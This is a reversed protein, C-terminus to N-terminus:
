KGGTNLYLTNRAGFAGTNGCVLDLDGDGDVDGLAMSCGARLPNLTPQRLDATFKGRGNNLYVHTGEGISNVILDLDADGDLDVLVAGTAALSSCAVGARDTIDQQRQQPCTRAKDCGAHQRRQRPNHAM